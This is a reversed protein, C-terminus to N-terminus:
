RSGPALSQSVHYPEHLIRGWRMKAIHTKAEDRDQRITAVEDTPAIFGVCPFFATRGCHLSACM